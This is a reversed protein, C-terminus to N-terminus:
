CLHKCMINFANYLVGKINVFKLTTESPDSRRTNEAPQLLHRSEMCAATWCPPQLHLHRLTPTPSLALHLGESITVICNPPPDEHEVVLITECPSLMRTVTTAKHTMMRQHLMFLPRSHVSEDHHSCFFEKCGICVLVVVGHCPADDQACGGSCATWSEAALAADGMIFM